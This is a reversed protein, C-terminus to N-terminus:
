LRNSRDMICLQMPVLAQQQLMDWVLRGEQKCIGVRVKVRLETGLKVAALDYFRADGLHAKM